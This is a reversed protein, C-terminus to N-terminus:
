PLLAALEAPTLSPPLRKAQWEFTPTGTVGGTRAAIDADTVWAHNAPDALCQSARARPLGHADALAVLGGLEAIVEAQAEPGRLEAEFMQQRSGDDAMGAALLAKTDAQATLLAKIFGLRRAPAICRTLVSAARDQPFILFPRFAFRAKGSKVASDIRPGVEASFRGCSPCGFSAYEALLPASPRGFTWGSANESVATRWDRAPAAAGLLVLCFLALLSKRM